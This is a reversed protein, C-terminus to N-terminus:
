TIGDEECCGLVCDNWTTEDDIVWRWRATGPIDVPPTVSEFRRTVCRYTIAGSPAVIKSWWRAVPIWIYMHDPGCAYHGPLPSPVGCHARTGYCQWVQNMRTLPWGAETRELGLKRKYYSLADTDTPGGPQISIFAVPVWPNNSVVGTSFNSMTLDHLKPVPYITGKITTPQVSSSVGIPMALLQEDYWGKIGTIRKFGAPQAGAIDAVASPTFAKDPGPAGIECWGAGCKIGISEQNNVTDRDWRAVAPYDSSPGGASRIVTLEKGQTAPDNPNAASNCADWATGLAPTPVVKARLASNRDFYVYVCSFNSPIGLPTYADGYNYIEGVALTSPTPPGTFVTVFVSEGLGLSIPTDAGPPLDITGPEGPPAPTNGVTAVASALLNGASSMATITTTGPGVVTILGDSNVTAAGPNSSAWIVPWTLAKVITDLSSAAFVAVLPGFSPRGLSDPVIFKQCDNFEPINTNPGTLGFGNMGVLAMGGGAESQVAASDGTGSKVSSAIHFLPINDWVEPCEPRQASLRPGDSHPIGFENITVFAEVVVWLLISGVIASVWKYKTLFGM